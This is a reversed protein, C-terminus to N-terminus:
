NTLINAECIEGLVPKVGDTETLNIKLVKNEISDINVINNTNDSSIKVRIYNTTLGEIFDDSKRSEFLVSQDTGIFKTYFDFRKKNSLNRLLESRRKRERIDVKGPLLRADTNKRESYNFVHLYSVPLSELFNFTNLFHEETEGPFGTIVDVGIGVEEIEENLRHILDFYYERNYRRRMLKLIENDGSQMPIHFHNCFKDSYKVISIIEDILLNPEISSIRIREINLKDLE